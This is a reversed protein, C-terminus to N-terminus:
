RVPLVQVSVSGVHRDEARLLRKLYLVLKKSELISLGPDVEVALDVFIKPGAPRARVSSVKKVEELRSVKARINETYDRPVSTDMLGKFGDWFIVVSAHIVHVGEFVAILPDAWYLGARTAMVGIAVLVASVVDVKNHEADARLAPSNLQKAACHSYKYVLGNAFASFIAVFFVFMHPMEVTHKGIDILSSMMMVVTGLIMLGGVSVQAIFELKGFGYQYRTSAAKGSLGTGYLVALASSIDSLNCLGSGILARSRGLVGVIIKVTAGAVGVLLSVWGIKTSCKECRKTDQLDFRGARPSCQQQKKSDKETAM